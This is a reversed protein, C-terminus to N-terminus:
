RRTGAGPDIAPALGDQWVSAANGYSGVPPATRSPGPRVFAPSQKWSFGGRLDGIKEAVIRGAAEDIRRDIREDARAITASLLAAALAIHHGTM